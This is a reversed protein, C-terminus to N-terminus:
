WEAKENRKFEQVSGKQAGSQNGGAERSATGMEERTVEADPGAPGHNWASLTRPISVAGDM